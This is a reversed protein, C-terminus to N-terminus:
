WVSPLSMALSHQLMMITESSPTPTDGQHLQWISWEFKLFLAPGMPRANSNDTITCGVQISGITIGGVGSVNHQATSHQAARSHRRSALSPPRLLQTDATDMWLSSSLLPLFTPPPHIPSCAPLTYHVRRTQTHLPRSCGPQSVIMSQGEENCIFGYEGSDIDSNMVCKGEGQGRGGVVPGPQPASQSQTRAAPVCHTPHVLPCRSPCPPDRRTWSGERGSGCHSDHMDHMDSSLGHGVMGVVSGVGCCPDLQPQITSCM